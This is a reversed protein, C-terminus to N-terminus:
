KEQEGSVIMDFDDMYEDVVDVSNYVCVTINKNKDFNNNGDGIKQIHNKYDSNFKILENEIQELLIIRPVFIIIKKKIDISHAIIFNKGSGTPLCIILNKNLNKIKNIAEKQYDRIKIKEKKVIKPKYDDKTDVLKQCYSIFEDRDYTKDVFIKAKQKLNKSLNSNKNRTIILKKWKIILEGDNNAIINSGFFTGCEKWTLQKDRLKCQVITDKLNCCDIGSDNKTLGHEEKFNNDIDTYEYFQQKYEESLKICSYYEFIKALDYNNCDSLEKGSNILDLCRDIILRKYRMNDM